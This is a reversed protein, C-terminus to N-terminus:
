VYVCLCVCVCVCVCVSVCVCKCVCVSLGACKIILSPSCRRMELSASKDTRFGPNRMRIDLEMKKRGRDDIVSPFGSVFVGVLEMNPGHSSGADPFHPELRFVRSFM